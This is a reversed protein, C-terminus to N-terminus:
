QVQISELFRVINTLRVTNRTDNPDLGRFIPGWIPMERTGHASGQFPREGSIWAELTPRPFVGQHRKSLTTLDPPPTKLLGTASGRGKADRGHCSSCYHDFLDRGALSTIILPPTLNSRSTQAEVFGGLGLLGFVVAATM